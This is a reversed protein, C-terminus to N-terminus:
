FINETELTDDENRYTIEAKFEVTDPINDKNIFARLGTKTAAGKIHILVNVVGDIEADNLFLVTNDIVGDSDVSFLRLAQAEEESFSPEVIQINDLHENFINKTYIHKNSGEYQIISDFTGDEDLSLFIEKIGSIQEGNYYVATKELRGNSEIALTAM